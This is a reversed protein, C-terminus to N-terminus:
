IVDYIYFKRLAVEVVKTMNVIDWERFLTMVACFLVFVM